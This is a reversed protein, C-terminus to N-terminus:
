IVGYLNPKNALTFPANFTLIAVFPTVWREGRQMTMAPSTGAMWAKMSALVHIGPVLGPM